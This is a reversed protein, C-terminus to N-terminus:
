REMSFEITSVRRHKPCLIRIRDGRGMRAGKEPAGSTQPSLDELMPILLTPNSYASTGVRKAIWLLHDRTAVPEGCVECLVLEKEVSDRLEHRNDSAIDFDDTMVVGKETPCNRHCQACFICDDYHITLRRVGRGDKVEDTVEIDKAPCVVACAGCGICHEEQFRPVGRFGPPVEPKVAPFRSTYRRGFLARIAEKLERLKPYKM